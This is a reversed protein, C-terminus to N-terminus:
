WIIFGGTLKFRSRECSNEGYWTIHAMGVVVVVVIGVTWILAALGIRDEEGKWGPSGVRDRRKRVRWGGGVGVFRARWSRM